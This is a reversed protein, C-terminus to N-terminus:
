SIRWFAILTDAGWYCNEAVKNRFIRGDAYQVDVFGNAESPRGHGPKFREWKDM